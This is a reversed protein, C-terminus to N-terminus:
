NDRNPKPKRKKSRLQVWDTARVSSPRPRKNTRYEDANEKIKEYIHDQGYDYLIDLNRLYVRDSPKDPNSSLYTNLNDVAWIERNITNEIIQLDGRKLSDSLDDLFQKERELRERLLFESRPVFKAHAEEIIAEEEATKIQKKLREIHDYLEQVKPPVPKPAEKKPGFLDASEDEVTLKKM